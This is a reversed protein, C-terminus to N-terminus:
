RSSYRFDFWKSIAEDIVRHMARTISIHMSNFARYYYPGRSHRFVVPYAVMPVGPQEHISSNSTVTPADIPWHLAVNAGAQRSQHQYKCLRYLSQASVIELEPVYSTAELLPYRIAVSAAMQAEPNRKHHVAALYLRLPKDQFESCINKLVEDAVFTMALKTAARWIGWREEFSPKSAYHVDHAAGHFPRCIRLLNRLSTEDVDVDVIPIGDLQGCHIDHVKSLISHANALSLLLQHTRVITGDSTQLAIDAPWQPPFVAELDDPFSWHNDDPPWSTLIESSPNCFEEPIVGSGLQMYRLLRFYCGAPILRMEPIYSMGAMSEEFARFTCASDDCPNGSSNSSSHLENECNGSSYSSAFYKTRWATAALSAESELKLRCAIVFVQLPETSVFVQLQSKLLTAAVDIDYKLAAELVKGVFVVDPSSAPDTVPYCIRLLHEITHGDEALPIIPILSGDLSAGFDPHPTLPADAQPLTFMSDFFPSALSLLLKHSYFDVHDSTRLIVDSKPGHFPAAATTIIPPPPIMTEDAPFSSEMPENTADLPTLPDMVILTPQATPHLLFAQHRVSRYSYGFCSTVLNVRPWGCPPELHVSCQPM